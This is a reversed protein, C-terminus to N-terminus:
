EFCYRLFSSGDPNYKVFVSERPDVWSVPYEGGFTLDVTFPPLGVPFTTSGCGYSDLIFQDRPAWNLDQKVQSFPEAVSDNIRNNDYFLTLLGELYTYSVFQDLPTGPCTMLPVEGIVHMGGEILDFIFGGNPDRHKTYSNDAYSWKAPDPDSNDGVYTVRVRRNFLRVTVIYNGDEDRETLPFFESKNVADIRAHPKLRSGYVAYPDFQLVYEITKNPLKKWSKIRIPELNIIRGCAEVILGTTITEGMMKLEGAGMALGDFSQVPYQVETESVCLRFRWNGLEDKYGFKSGRPDIWSGGQDIDGGFAGDLTTPLGTEVRIYGWGNSDIIVQQQPEWEGDNKISGFPEALHNSRNKANNVMFDYGNGDASRRVGVFPDGIEWPPPPIPAKGKKYTKGEYLGFALKGQYFLNFKYIPALLWDKSPLDPNHWLFYWLEEVELNYTIIDVAWFKKSYDYLEVIKGGTLDGIICPKPERGDKIKYKRFGLTVKWAFNEVQVAALVPLSGCKTPKPPKVKKAAMVDSLGAAFFVALMIALVALTRKM